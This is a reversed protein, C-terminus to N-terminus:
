QNLNSDRKLIKLCVLIKNHITISTLYLKLDNARTIINESNPKAGENLMANQYSLVSV